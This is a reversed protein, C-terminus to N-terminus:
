KFYLPVNFVGQPHLVSQCHGGESYKPEMKGYAGRHTTPSSIRLWEFISATSILRCGPSEGRVVFGIVEPSVMIDYNLVKVCSISVMDMNKFLSATM